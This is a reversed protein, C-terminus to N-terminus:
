EGKFRRKAMSYGLKFAVLAVVILAVLFFTFTAHLHIESIM